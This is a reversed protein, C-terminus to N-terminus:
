KRSSSRGAMLAIAKTLLHTAEAEAAKETWGRGPGFIWVGGRVNWREKTGLAGTWLLDNALRVASLDNTYLDDPDNVPTVLHSGRATTLHHVLVSKQLDHMIQTDKTFWQQRRVQVEDGSIWVYHKASSM